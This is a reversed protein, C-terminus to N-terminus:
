KEAHIEACGRAGRVDVGALGPAAQATHCAGLDGAQRGTAAAGIEGDEVVECRRGGPTAILKEGPQHALKAPPAELDFHVADGALRGDAEEVREIEVIASQAAEGARTAPHHMAHVARNADVSAEVVTGIAVDVLEVALQRGRRDELGAIAELLMALQPQLQPLRDHDRVRGIGRHEVGVTAHLKARPLGYAQDRRAPGVVRALAGVHDRLELTLEIRRPELQREDAARGDAEFLCADDRRHRRSFDSPQEALM